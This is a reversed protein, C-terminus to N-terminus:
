CPEPSLANEYEDNIYNIMFCHEIIHLMKNQM